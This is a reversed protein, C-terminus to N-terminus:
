RRGRGRAVVPSPREIADRGHPTIKWGDRSHPAPATCYGAIRLRELSARCEYWLWSSTGLRAGQAADFLEGYQLEPSEWLRVLLFKDLAIQEPSLRLDM